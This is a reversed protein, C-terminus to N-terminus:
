RPFLSSAAAQIWIAAASAGPDPVSSLVEEPVYSSRGAMAPMSKTAEAGQRAAAAAARAIDAAPQGEQLAGAMARQAPVLADLMTRCGEAAGGYKKVAATGAAFAESWERAGCSASAHQKLACAAATLFVDYLGGSTGGISRRVTHAMQMALTHPVNLDYKTTLDSLIAEAGTKFTSGCDGDGM